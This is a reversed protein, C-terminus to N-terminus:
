HNEDFSSDSTSENESDLSAEDDSVEDDNENEELRGNLKSLPKEIIDDPVDERVLDGDSDNDSINLNKSIKASHLEQGNLNSNDGMDFLDRPPARLVYNKNKNFPDEVYFCQQVQSALVFPDDKYCKKNFYVYTLGYKDEYRIYDQVEDYNFLVYGHAQNQSKPDLSILKKGGIPHGINPFEDSNRAM